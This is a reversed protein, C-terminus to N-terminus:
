CYNRHLLISYHFLGSFPQETIGIVPNEYIRSDKGQLVVMYDIQAGQLIGHPNGVAKYPIVFYAPSKVSDTLLNWADRSIISVPKKSFPDMLHNGTDAYGHIHCSRGNWYLVVERMCEKQQKYVQFVRELIGFVLVLAVASFLVEETRIKMWQELLQLIGGLVLTWLIMQYLLYLIKRQDRLHFCDCVMVGAAPFLVGIQLIWVSRFFLISILTNCLATMGSTWFIRKWRIEQFFLTKLFALFLLNCSLNELFLTDPYIIYHMAKRRVASDNYSFLEEKKTAIILFKEKITKHKRVKEQKKQCMNVIQRAM